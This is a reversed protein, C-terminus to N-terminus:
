DRYELEITAHEGRQQRTYELAERTVLWMGFSERVFADGLVDEALPRPAPVPLARGDHQVRVRVRGDDFRLRLLVEGLGRQALMETVEVLAHRITDATRHRLAWHGAAKEVLRDIALGPETRLDLQADIRRGVLPLTLLHLAFATAFALTVPALLAAPLYHTLQVPNSLAMLGASLGLGVCAARRADLVRSAMLTAGGALMVSSVFVLMAAAVPGPLLVFISVLKPSCALLLLIASGVYTARRSYARTAVSLGVCASSTSTGFGGLLGSVCDALHGAVVGRRLPAMDPRVWVADTGRQYTLMDGLWSPVCCFAAIFFPLILSWTLQGFAPLVPRPLAFWPEDSILAKATPDGMLLLVAVGMGLVGGLIVAFRSLPWRLLATVVMVALSALLLAIAPLEPLGSAIDRLVLAGARPLLSAGIMFVVVGTLEPPILSLLRPMALFLLLALLSAVILAAGAAGLTAASGAAFLYPGLFIPTPVNPLAYGSGVPGRKIGHLLAGLANGALTMCIFGMTQQPSLGFATAALVPILWYVSQLAIQQFALALSQLGSPLDDTGHVLDPPRQIRADRSRDVWHPLAIM